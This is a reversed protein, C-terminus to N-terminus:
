VVNLIGRTEGNCCSTIIFCELYAELYINNEKSIDILGKINDLYPSNYSKKRDIIEFSVKKSVENLRFEQAYIKKNLVMEKVKLSINKNNLDELLMFTISLLRMIQKNIPFTLDYQNLFEIEYEKHNAYDNKAGIKFEDDRLLNFGYNKEGEQIKFNIHQKKSSIELTCISEQFQFKDIGLGRDNFISYKFEYIGDINVNELPPSISSSLFLFYPIFFLQSM